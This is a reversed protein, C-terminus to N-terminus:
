QGGTVMKKVGLPRACSVFLNNAAIRSSFPLPQAPQNNVTLDALGPQCNGVGVSGGLRSFVQADMHDQSTTLLADAGVSTSILKDSSYLRDETNFRAVHDRAIRLEVEHPLRRTVALTKKHM